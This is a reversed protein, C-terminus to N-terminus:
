EENVEYWFKSNANSHIKIMYKKGTEKNTVEVTKVGDVGFVEDGPETNSIVTNDFNSSKLEKDLKKDSSITLMLAIIGIISIIIIAILIFYYEAHNHSEYSEVKARFLDFQEQQRDISEKLAEDDM